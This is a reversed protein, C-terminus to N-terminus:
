VAGVVAVTGDAVTVRVAELVAAVDFVGVALTVADAFGATGAGLPTTPSDDPDAGPEEVELCVGTGGEAAAPFLEFPDPAPAVATGTSPVCLTLHLFKCCPIDGMNM